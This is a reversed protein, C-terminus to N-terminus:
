SRISFMKNFAEEDLVRSASLISTELGDLTDVAKALADRREQGPIELISLLEGRFSELAFEIEALEIAWAVLAEFDVAKSM